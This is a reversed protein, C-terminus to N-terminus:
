ATQPVLAFSLCIEKEKKMIEHISSENEGYIKAVQAYVTKEKRLNLVKVKESLSLLKHSRKPM